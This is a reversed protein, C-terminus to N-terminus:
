VQSDLMYIVGIDASPGYFPEQDTPVEPLPDNSVRKSRYPIEAYNVLDASSSVTNLPTLYCSDLDFREFTAPSTPEEGQQGSRSSLSSSATSSNDKNLSSIQSYAPIVEYVNANMYSQYSAVSETSKRRRDSCLRPSCFFYFYFPLDIPVCSSILYFKLQTPMKIKM